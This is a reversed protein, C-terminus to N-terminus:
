DNKISELVSDTDVYGDKNIASPALKVALNQFRIAARIYDSQSIPRKIQMGYNIRGEELEKIEEVDMRFNILKTAM